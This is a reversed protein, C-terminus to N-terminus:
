NLHRGWIRSLYEGLVLLKSFFDMLLWAQRLTVHRFLRLLFVIHLIYFSVVCTNKNIFLCTYPVSPFTLGLHCMLNSLFLFCLFPLANPNLSQEIVPETQVGAMTPQNIGMTKGKINQTELARILFHPNNNKM